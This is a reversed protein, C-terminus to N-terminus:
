AFQRCSVHCPTPWVQRHPPLGIIVPVPRIRGRMPLLISRKRRPRFLSICCGNRRCHRRVFARAVVLPEGASDVMFPHHGFSAIGARRRRNGPLTQGVSAARAVVVCVLSDFTSAISM